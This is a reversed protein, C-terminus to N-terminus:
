VCWLDTFRQHQLWYLQRWTVVPSNKVNFGTCTVDRTCSLSCDQLSSSSTTENAVDLACMVPGNQTRRSKRFSVVEVTDELSSVSVAVDLLLLLLFMPVLIENMKAKNLLQWVGLYSCLPYLCRLPVIASIVFVGFVLLWALRSRSCTSPWKLPVM